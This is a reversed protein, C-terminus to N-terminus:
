QVVSLEGDEIVLVQADGGYYSSMAVDVYWVQEDCNSGISSFRTHGVVMREAHLADLVGELMACTEPTVDESYDRSWVMSDDGDLYTPEKGEGRMWDQIEGNIREIGYEVNVPLVGGHVFVTNGVVMVTNQGALAMAWEGGPRFASVRGRQGPLYQAVWPADQDYPTDAFDAFGGDTVYRLDLQVNMVEHNGNLPYVAGGADHAQEGLHLLVELIREEEDARDLQDGVQVVVSEGGSWNGEDDVVEALALALLLADVDGHVDGIAVVRAADNIFTEPPTHWPVVEAPSASDEAPPICALLLAFM